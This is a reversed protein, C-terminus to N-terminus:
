HVRLQYGVCPDISNILCRAAPELPQPSQKVLAGLSQQILGRPHFNWETPAIIHYRRISDQEVEAYHLLRGRATEVQALGRDAFAVDTWSEEPANTRARIMAPILALEVLRAVMRALLGHGHHQEVGQILPHARQRTFCSTECCQDKWNPTTCFNQDLQPLLRARSVRPLSPINTQGLGTWQQRIVFRIAEAAITDARDVWNLFDDHDRIDLWQETDMGLIQDSVLRTLKDLISILKGAEFLVPAHLAFPKHDTFLARTTDALLPMIEAVSIVKGQVAYLTPWDLSLRLLHERANEILVLIDRATERIPDNGQDLASCLALQSARSQAMACVNFLLPIIDSAQEVTKGTLLQSIQLPRSSEIRVPNDSGPYLDIEIEGEPLM